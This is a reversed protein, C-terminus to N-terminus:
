GIKISKLIQAKTISLSKLTSELSSTWKESWKEQNKGMFIDYFIWIIILVNMRPPKKSIRTISDDKLVSKFSTMQTSPPSVLHSTQSPACIFYSISTAHCLYGSAIEEYWVISYKQVGLHPTNPLVWMLVM